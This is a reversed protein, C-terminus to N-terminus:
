NVPKKMKKPRRLAEMSLLSNISLAESILDYLQSTEPSTVKNLIEMLLDAITTYILNIILGASLDPRCLLYKKFFTM